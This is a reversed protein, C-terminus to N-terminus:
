DCTRGEILQMLLGKSRELAQEYFTRGEGEFGALEGTQTEWAIVAPIWISRCLSFYPAVRWPMPGSPYRGAHRRGIDPILYPHESVADM